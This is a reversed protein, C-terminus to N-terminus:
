LSGKIYTKFCSSQFVESSKILNALRKVLEFSTRTKGIGSQGSLTLLFWDQSKTSKTEFAKYNRTAFDVISDTDLADELFNFCFNERKYFEDWRDLNAKAAFKPSRTVLFDELTTSAM